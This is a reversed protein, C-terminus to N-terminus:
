ILNQNNIPLYSLTIDCVKDRTFKWKVFQLQLSMAICHRRFCLARMLIITQNLKFVRSNQHM